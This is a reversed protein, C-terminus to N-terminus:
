NTYSINVTSHGLASSGPNTQRIVRFQPKVTTTSDITAGCTVEMSGDDVM